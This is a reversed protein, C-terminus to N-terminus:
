YVTRIHEPSKLLRKTYDFVEAQHECDGSGPPEILDVM